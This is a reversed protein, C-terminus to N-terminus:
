FWTSDDYISGAAVLRAEQAREMATLGEEVERGYEINLCPLMRMACPDLLDMSRGRGLRQNMERKSDLRKKGTVYETFHVVACEELFENEVTVPYKLNIHTYIKEAIKTDFSLDGTRIMRCLRLYCLDKMTQATLAYLGRPRQASIYPIADPAYDNFYRAATADYIIHSDPINRERAFARIRHANEAPTTHSLLMIGNVHFGNWSLAVVNDTGVDALDATVWMDNNEAPDNTFVRRAAESPIAREEAEDPDVNWNGELLAQSMLGGSAAVSGIYDPNGELLGKNESMRGQYFVFSKIMNEYTFNGGVARLKRDIDIRCKKYVEEKSNGWVVDKVSSGTNYFYRVRGDREPIITGDIGIYWDIFQRVWHTRKPNMTAFFKGTFTKSKGRNRTMIYSFIEWPMETLEDIAIVDYQWGKARERMDDLNLDNIYTLDCYAGCAFSARPDKSERISVYDGFIDKFTDVFGGGQKLNAISKRSILARFQPDTMLPEAIALVLGFSKGAALIGGGFVVDVSSSAFMQQFGAQPKIIYNASSSAM